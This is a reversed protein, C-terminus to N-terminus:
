TAVRVWWSEGKGARPESRLQWQEGCFAHTQHRLRESSSTTVQRRVKLVRSSQPSGVRNRFGDSQDVNQAQCIM